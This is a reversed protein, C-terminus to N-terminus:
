GKPSQRWYATFLILQQCYDEQSTAIRAGGFSGFMPRGHVPQPTPISANADGMQAWSIAGGKIVMEPKVSLFAPQWLCLDADQICPNGAKGIQAIRGEKLGADAKVIGWWNLILANTIVANVVGDTNTIPLQGM